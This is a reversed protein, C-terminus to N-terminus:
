TYNKERPKENMWESMWESLLTFFCIKFVAVLSYQYKEYYTENSSDLINPNECKRILM